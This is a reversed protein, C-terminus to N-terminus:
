SSKRCDFPNSAFFFFLASRVVCVCVCVGSEITRVSFQLFCVIEAKMKITQKSKPQWSDLGMKNAKEIQHRPM